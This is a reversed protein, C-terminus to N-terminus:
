SQRGRRVSQIEEAIEAESIPLDSAKRRARLVASSFMARRVECLADEASEPDVSIMIAFPCGDKTVVVEQERELTERLERPRKLDQVAITTM